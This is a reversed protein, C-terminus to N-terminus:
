QTNINTSAPSCLIHLWWMEISIFINVTQDTFRLCHYGLIQLTPITL